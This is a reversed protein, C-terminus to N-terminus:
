LAPPRFHRGLAPRVPGRDGLPGEGRALVAFPELAQQPGPDPLADPGPALLLGLAVRRRSREHDLHRQQELRPHVRGEVSGQRHHGVLGDPALPGTRPPVGREVLPRRALEGLLLFRGPRRVRDSVGPREFIQLLRQGPYKLLKLLSILVRDAVVRARGRRAGSRRRASSRRSVHSARATTIPAATTAAMTAGPTSLATLSIASGSRWSSMMRWCAASLCSSGASIAPIM